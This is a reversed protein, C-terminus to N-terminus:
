LGTGVEADDADVDDAAIGIWMREHFQRAKWYQLGRLWGFM